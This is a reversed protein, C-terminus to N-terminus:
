EADRLMGQLTRRGAGREIAVAVALAVAVAAIGTLAIAASGARFLAHPPSNPRPDFSTYVLRAALWALVSGFLWGALLMAGVEVGTAAASTRRRM